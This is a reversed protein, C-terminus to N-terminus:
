AFTEIRLLTPDLEKLAPGGPGRNCGSCRVLVERRFIRSRCEMRSRAWGARLRAPGSPAACASAAAGVGPRTLRNRDDRLPALRPPRPSAPLARGSGCRLPGVQFSPGSGTRPSPDPASRRGDDASSAAPRRAAPRGLRSRVSCRHPGPCPPRGAPRRASAHGGPGFQLPLAAAPRSPRSWSSRAPDPDFRLRRRLHPGSVSPVPM